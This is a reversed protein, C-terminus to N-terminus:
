GKIVMWNASWDNSSNGGTLHITFGDTGAVVHSFEVPESAPTITTIFVLDSSTMGPVSAFETAGGGSWNVRGKHAVTNNAVVEGKVTLDCEHGDEDFSMVLGASATNAGFRLAQGSTIYSIGKSDLHLGANSVVVDSSNVVANVYLGSSDLRGTAVNKCQISIDNPQSLRALSM